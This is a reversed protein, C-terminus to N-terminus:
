SQDKSGENKENFFTFYYPDKKQGTAKAEEMLRDNTNGSLMANTNKADERRSSHQNDKNTPTKERDSISKHSQDGGFVNHGSGGGNSINHPEHGSHGSRNEQTQDQGFATTASTMGGQSTTDGRSQNINYPVMKSLM